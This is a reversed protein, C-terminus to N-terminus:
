RCFTTILTMLFTKVIAHPFGSLLQPNSICHEGQTAAATEYHMQYFRSAESSYEAAAAAPNSMQAPHQHNMPDPPLGTPPSGRYRDALSSGSPPPPPPYWSAAAAAAAHAHAAHAHAAVPVFFVMM